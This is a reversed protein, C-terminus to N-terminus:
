YIQASFDQWLQDTERKHCSNAGTAFSHISPRGVFNVASQAYGQDQIVRDLHMKAFQFAGQNLPEEQMWMFQADQAQVHESLAQKIHNVPFPALEEVRIM